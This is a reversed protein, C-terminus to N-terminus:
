TRKDKEKNQYLLDDATKIIEDISGLQSNAFGFSVSLNVTPYMACTPEFLEIVRNSIQKADELTADNIVLIFEDGGYRIAIDNKRSAQSLANAFSKLVKDGEVHGFNDNIAKFHNLDMMILSYPLDTGIIELMQYLYRRNYLGTLPDTISANFIRKHEDDFYRNLVYVVIFLVMSAVLFNISLDLARLQPDTYLTYQDPRLPEYNLLLIMITVTGFPFVYEWIQNVLIISVFLIVVSYFAMASYSGPSTLWASPLYLFCLFILFISKITSRNQNNKYRHIMGYVILSGILPFVVNPWPRRYLGNLLTTVMLTAVTIWLVSILIKTKVELLYKNKTTKLSM